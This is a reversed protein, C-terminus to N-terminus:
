ASSRTARKAEIRRWLQAMPDNSTEVWRRLHDIEEQSSLGGTAQAYEQQAKWKFEVCDFSKTTSM